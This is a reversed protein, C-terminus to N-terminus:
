DIPEGLTRLRDGMEATAPTREATWTRPGAGVRSQDNTTGQISDGNIRGSFTQTLEGGGTAPYTISFVLRDGEVRGNEVPVDMGDVRAMGNVMQFEQGLDLELQRGGNPEQVTLNWKGQVDAPIIWLYVTNGEVSVTKDPEWEGMDFSYSVVPTGPRLERLLKPRLRMNLSSLLYLTVATAERLDAEFLDGQIFNVRDTVGEQEANANSEAIREPDLDIGIGRVGYRKAATIVIRGDGSGLDYLVDNKDLDALKLMEDVVPQPTPVFQVDLSVLRTGPGDTVQDAVVGHAYGMVGISLSFLVTVLKRLAGM